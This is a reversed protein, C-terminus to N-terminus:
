NQMGVFTHGLFTSLFNHTLVEFFALLNQRIFYFVAVYLYNSVQVFRKAKFNVELLVVFSNIIGRAIIM